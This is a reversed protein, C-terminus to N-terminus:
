LQASILCICTCLMTRRLAVSKGITWTFTLYKHQEYLKEVNEIFQEKSFQSNVTWAQM